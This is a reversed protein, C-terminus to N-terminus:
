HKRRSIARRRSEVAEKRQSARGGSADDANDEADSSEEEGNTPEAGELPLEGQNDAKKDLQAGAIAISCKRNLLGLVDLHEPPVGKVTCSMATLGGEQLELAIKDLKCPKMVCDIDDVKITAKADKFKRDIPFRGIVPWRPRIHAGDADAKAFLHEHASPDELMTNLEAPTLLIGSIPIDVGPVDEEGHRQTRTNISPGVKAQRKTLNLKMLDEPPQLDLRTDCDPSPNKKLDHRTIDRYGNAHALGEIAKAGTEDSATGLSVLYGTVPEEAVIEFRPVYIRPHTM